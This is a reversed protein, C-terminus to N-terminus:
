NPNLFRRIMIINLGKILSLLCHRALGNDFHEINQLM